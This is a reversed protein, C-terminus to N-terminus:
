KTLSKLEEVVLPGTGAAAAGIGTVESKVPGVGPALWTRVKITVRHGVISEAMTQDVITAHYTGAPVTVTQTGGGKVTVHVKENIVRGGSNVSVSLTSTHSQGSAIASAPPWVISGSRITVKGGGTQSFPVSISGDSYFLYTVTTPKSPVGAIHAANTLTVLNGGSVPKVSKVTNVTTSSGLAGLHDAYVWKEGVAVPFLLSGVGTTSGQGGGSSQGSGPGTNSSTSGQSGGSGSGSSSTPSSSSCGAVLLGAMALAAAPGAAARGSVHFRNM